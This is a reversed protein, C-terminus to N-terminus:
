GRAGISMYRNPRAVRISGGRFIPAYDRNIHALFGANEELIRLAEKTIMSCTILSNSSLVLEPVAIKRVPMLIGAKVVAPAMGVALMARLFGRREMVGGITEKAM